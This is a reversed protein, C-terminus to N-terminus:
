RVIKALTGTLTYTTGRVLSEYTSALVSEVPVSGAPFGRGPVMTEWKITAGNRHRRAIPQGVAIAQAESMKSPIEVIHFMDPTSGAVKMIM